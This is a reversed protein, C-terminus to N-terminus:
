RPTTNPAAPQSLLWGTDPRQRLKALANTPDQQRAKEAAFDPASLLIGGASIADTSVQVLTDAKKPATFTAPHYNADNLIWTLDVASKEPLGDARLLSALIVMDTLNQLDALSDIKAALEPMKASFNRAFRTATEPAGKPEFLKAGAEVRLRPGRLEYADGAASVLLPDYQPVFWVRSAASGTTLVSGVGAVPAAEAAMAIRKLRYDASVMALAARSSDAVGFVRVDQPGLTKVLEDRIQADGANPGLRKMAEGSKALANATMDISCGVTVNAKPYAARLITVLDDFQMLPRGTVQGVPTGPRAPDLPEAPGALVIDHEAPYVFVYRLQTLGGLTQIEQPLPKHADALAKVEALLRPLSIYATRALKENRSPKATNGLSRSSVVGDASISVGNVPLTTSGPSTAPVGPQQALAALSLALTPLLSLSLLRTPSTM